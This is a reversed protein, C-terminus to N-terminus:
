RIAMKRPNISSETQMNGLIGAIANLTWGKPTLANYLYVANYKQQTETLAQSGDILNGYYIGYIGYRKLEDPPDPLIPSGGGTYDVITGRTNPIGLPEVPNLFNACNWSQSTSLELHLHTGTSNGTNGMDGLYTNYDVKDGVNVQITGYKLHCYRYFNGTATEKIQVQNGLAPSDGTASKYVYVVEGIACSYLKPNASSTGSAPFDCGTHFGCSYGSDKVGYPYGVTCRQHIPSRNSEVVAM